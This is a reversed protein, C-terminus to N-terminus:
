KIELLSKIYYHYYEINITIKQTKKDSMAIVLISGYEEYFLFYLRKGNLKKERLFSRSLSKGINGGKEELQRFINKIRIKESNDLREFDKDFEETTFIKYLESM